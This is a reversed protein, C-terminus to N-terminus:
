QEKNQTPKKKGVVVGYGHSVSKGLGIHNPLFVNTSFVFSFASLRTGKVKAPRTDIPSQIKIEIPKTVTWEIGKAFSLINAKMIKILMEQREEEKELEHYKQYNQANLAIWNKIHYNWTKDWVQLTFQNLNLTNIKMNLKRGSLAISWDKNQFFNHVEDVGHELCIIAPMGRITKYQILPYRYSYQEKGLHNHFLVNELGAKEAVAARFAPIEHGALEGEFIIKLLRIRKIGNPTQSNTEM